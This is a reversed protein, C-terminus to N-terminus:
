FGIEISKRSNTLWSCFQVNNYSIIYTIDAMSNIHYQLSGHKRLIEKGKYLTKMLGSVLMGLDSSDHSVRTFIVCPLCFGGDLLKSYTLWTSNTKIWEQFYRHKKTFKDHTPFVLTNGTVM